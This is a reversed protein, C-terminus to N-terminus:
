HGTLLLGQRVRAGQHALELCVARVWGLELCIQGLDGCRRVLRAAGSFVELCLPLSVHRRSIAQRCLHLLGVKGRVGLGHGIHRVGNLALSLRVDLSQAAPPSVELLFSCPQVVGHGRPLATDLEVDLVRSLEDFVDLAPEVCKNVVHFTDSGLSLREDGFNVTSYRWVYHWPGARQVFHSSGLKLFYIFN